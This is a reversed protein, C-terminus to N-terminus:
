LGHKVNGNGYVHGGVSHGNGMSDMSADSCSEGEKHQSDTGEAENAIQGSANREGSNHDSGDEDPLSEDDEEEEEEEEDDEGEAEEEEGEEEEEAEVEEEEEEEEGDEEEEEGEEEGGEEGDEDEDEESESESEMDGAEGPWSQGDSNDGDEDGNGEEEEDDSGELSSSSSSGGDAEWIVGNGIGNLLSLGGGPLGRIGDTMGNPMEIGNALGSLSAVSSTSAGGNETRHRDAVDGNVLREAAAVAEASRLEAFGLALDMEVHVSNNGNSLVEINFNDRADRSQRQQDSGWGM